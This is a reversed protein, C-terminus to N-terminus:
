YINLWKPGEKQQEKGIGGSVFIKEIQHNFYLSIAKDLRAQLRPSLTGDSNVTNGFVVGFKSQGQEDNLGDIAICSTHISFWIALFYIIRKVYLKLKKM